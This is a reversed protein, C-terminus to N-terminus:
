NQLILLLNNTVILAQDDTANLTNNQIININLNNFSADSSTILNRTVTTNSIDINNTQITNFNSSGRTVLDNNILVNRKNNIFKSCVWFPIQQVM